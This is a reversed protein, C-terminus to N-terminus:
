YLSLAAKALQNISRLALRHLDRPTLRCARPTRLVALLQRAFLAYAGFSGGQAIGIHGVQDMFKALGM